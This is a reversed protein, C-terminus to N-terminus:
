SRTGTILQAAGLGLTRRKIEKFGADRFLALLQGTPPLYASSRPLWRYAEADSLLGGIWPVVRYFYLRHGAQLVKNDPQATELVALRGGPRLVRAFEGLLRPVSAVNRLAFGCVVGDGSADAAPLALADALVLPAATRAHALMGASIDFGVPRYRAQALKRCLDGTGCAVDFVLSGAPLALSDVAAARWGRDMGLTMVRNVLDYRGAIADFMRTVAQVKQAGEPLAPGGSAKKLHAM